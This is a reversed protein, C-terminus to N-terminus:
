VASTESSTADADLKYEDSEDQAKYLFHVIDEYDLDNNNCYVYFDWASETGVSEYFRYMASYPVALRTGVEMRAELLEALEDVWVECDEEAYTSYSRGVPEDMDDFKDYGFGYSGYGGYAYSGYKGLTVQPKCHTFKRGTTEWAYTNSLWAGEFMVGQEENVTVMNGLHDILTFKNGSGIHEGILDQFAETMFFTPNNLLIPRLYNQIYHWTDSMTTDNHNGTHLVGNHMLWIEYGEDASLVQYPHCNDLNTAGHTRMRYHVACAKNEVHERYFEYAEHENKPLHKKVVVKGDEAYMVGIGDSNLKYVGNLFATDFSTNAPQTILLCM